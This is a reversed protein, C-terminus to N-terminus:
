KARRNWAAVADTIGVVPSDPEQGEMSGTAGCDLCQVFYFVTLSETVKRVIEGAGGCFPCPKLKESMQGEQEM